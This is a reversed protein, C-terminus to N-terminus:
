THPAQKRRSFKSRRSIRVVGVAVRCTCRAGGRKVNASRAIAAFQISIAIAEGALRERRELSAPRAYRSPESPGSEM